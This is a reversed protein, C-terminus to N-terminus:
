LEAADEQPRLIRKGCPLCYKKAKGERRITITVVKPTLIRRCADNACREEIKPPTAMFADLGSM